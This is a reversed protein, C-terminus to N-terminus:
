KNNVDVRENRHKVNYVKVYIEMVNKTTLSHKVAVKEAQLVRWKEDKDEDLISSTKLKDDLDQFVAEMEPTVDEVSYIDMAPHVWNYAYVPVDIMIEYIKSKFGDKGDGSNDLNFSGYWDSSVDLAFWVLFILFCFKM